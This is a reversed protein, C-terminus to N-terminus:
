TIIQNDSENKKEFYKRVQPRYLLYLCSFNIIMAFTLSFIDVFILIASISNAILFGYCGIVAIYWALRMGRYLGYAVILQIIGIVLNAYLFFMFYPLIDKSLNGLLTKEGIILYRSEIITAIGFIVAIIIVIKLEIPREKTTKM